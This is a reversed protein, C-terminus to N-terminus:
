CTPLGLEWCDFEWHLTTEVNALAVGVTRALELEGSFEPAAKIFAGMSLRLAKVQETLKEERSM